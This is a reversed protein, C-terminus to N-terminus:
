VVSKRDPEPSEPPHAPLQARIAGPEARSMVPLEDLHARYDALWDVLRYGIQRFEEPTM